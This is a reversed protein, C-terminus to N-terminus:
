QQRISKRNSIRTEFFTAFKRIDVTTAQKRKKKLQNNKRIETNKKKRIEPIM